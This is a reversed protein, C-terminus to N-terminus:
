LQKEMFFSATNRRLSCCLIHWKGTITCLGQLFQASYYQPTYLASTLCWLIAQYYGLVMSDTNEGPNATRLACKLSDAATFHARLM